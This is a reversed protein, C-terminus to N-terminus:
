LCPKSRRRPRNRSPRKWRSHLARERGPTSSMRYGKGIGSGCWANGRVTSGVCDDPRHFGSAAIRPDKVSVVCAIQGVLQVVAILGAAAIRKGVIFEDCRHDGVASYEDAGEGSHDNEAQEMLPHPAEPPAWGKGAGRQSQRGFGKSKVGHAGKGAAVAVTKVQATIEGAGDLGEAQDGDGNKEQHFNRLQEIVAGRQIEPERPKAERGAVDNKMQADPLRDGVQEQMVTKQVNNEVQQVQGHEARVEFVGPARAAEVGIEEGAADAGAEDVHQHADRQNGGLSESGRRSPTAVM